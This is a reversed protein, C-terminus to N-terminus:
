QQQEQQKMRKERKRQTKSKRKGHRCKYGPKLEVRTMWKAHQIWLQDSLPFVDMPPDKGAKFNDLGIVRSDPRRKVLVFCHGLGDQGVSVM